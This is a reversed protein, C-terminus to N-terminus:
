TNMSKLRYLCKIAQLVQYPKAMGKEKQLNIRPDGFWPTKFIYHSGVIRPKGFFNECIIVLRNFRTNKVNAKLENIADDITM